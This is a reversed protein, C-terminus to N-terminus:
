AKVPRGRKKGEIQVPIPKPAEKAKLKGILYLIGLPDLGSIRNEIHQLVLKNFRETLISALFEKDLESGFLEPYSKILMDLVTDYQEKSHKM